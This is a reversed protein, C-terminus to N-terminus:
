TKPAKGQKQATRALALLLKIPASAEFPALRLVPLSVGLLERTPPPDPLREVAGPAVLEAILALEASREYPAQLIGIGRVELKGLITEPAAVSLRGDTLVILVRDDAVLYAAAPVLASTALSLCRLALDSKGAGSPGVILAARGDVAIATGHHTDPGDGV